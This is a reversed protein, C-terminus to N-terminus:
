HIEEIRSLNDILDKFESSDNYLKNADLMKLLEVGHKVKHYAKRKCKHTIKKLEDAPNEIERFDRKPIKHSIKEGYFKDLISPQSLFWGEMEQIMFFCYGDYSDLCYSQLKNKKESVPSDLDILLYSKCSMRKTKSNNKFINVACNTDSCMKIRPMSGTLKHKLLKNFGERLNGNTDYSTGEIFLIKDVM